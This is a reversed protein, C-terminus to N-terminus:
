QRMILFLRSFANKKEAFLYKGKKVELSVSEVSLTQRTSSFVCFLSSVDGYNRLPNTSCFTVNQWNCGLEFDSLGARM